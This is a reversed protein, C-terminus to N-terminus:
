AEKSKGGLAPFCGTSAKVNPIQKLQNDAYEKMQQCSSANPLEFTQAGIPINSGTNMLLVILLYTTNM